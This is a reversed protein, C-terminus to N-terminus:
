PEGEPNGIAKLYGEGADTIVVAVGTSSPVSRVFRRVETPQWNSQPGLSLMTLDTRRRGTSRLHVVVDMLKEPCAHSPTESREGQCQLM